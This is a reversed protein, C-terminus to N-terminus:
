RGAELERAAGHHTRRFNGVEDRRGAEARHLQVELAIQPNGGRRRTIRSTAEEVVDHIAVSFDDLAHLEGGTAGDRSENGSSADNKAGAFSAGDRDLERLDASRPRYGESM